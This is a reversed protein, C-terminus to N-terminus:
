SAPVFFFPAGLDGAFKIPAYRPDQEVNVQNAATKVRRAVQQYLLPGELVDRNSRLVDLLVNAFISHGGGGSDPVPQLGGSTLVTRSKTGIMSQFWKYKADDSRGGELSTSTARAMTGSYCSDVIVMIHKANMSNLIDTIQRNSIWNTRANLEADVPLWYGQDNARDLEGHGAYYLLFNDNETLKARFSELADLMQYRDADTLVRTQFGYRNRLVEAISTADNAATKLNPLEGYRNNGIVLAHYRGWQLKPPQPSPAAVSAPESIGRSAVTLAELDDLEKERTQVEAQLKSIAQEKQKLIDDKERLTQQLRQLESSGQDASRQRQELAQEAQQLSARLAVLEKRDTSLQEQYKFLQQQLYDVQQTLSEQTKTAFVNEEELGRAQQQTQQLEAQLQAQREAQRQLDALEQRQQELQRQQETLRSQLLETSAPQPPPQQRLQSQTAELERQASELSAQRAALQEQTRELRARLSDAEQKRSALEQRLQNQETGSVPATSEPAKRELEQIRNQAARLDAELRAQERSAERELRALERRQREIQETASQKEMQPAPPVPQPVPRSSSQQLQRQTIELDRQLADVRQRRSNLQRRTQELQARLLDAEQKQQAVERRLARRETEFNQPPASFALKDGTLGSARRYLNVSKARDRQVGLGREYLYGLNMQARPYGQDAAKDYWQAAQRLDPATGLGKEFIEGVYTQAKPDGAEALPLWVNLASAYNARDYAVYEGGRIQCDSASTKVARRATLYTMRSGLQRIQGPLLCDVILFQNADGRPVGAARLQEEVVTGSTVCGIMSAVLLGGLLPPLKNIWQFTSNLRMSSAERPQFFFLRAQKIIKNIKLEVWEECTLLTKSFNLGPIPFFEIWL